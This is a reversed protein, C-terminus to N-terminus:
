YQYTPTVQEREIETEWGRERGGVRGGGEGGRDAHVAVIEVGVRRVIVHGFCLAAGNKLDIPLGHPQAVLPITPQRLQGQAWPIM